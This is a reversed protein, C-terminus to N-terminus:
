GRNKLTEALDHFKSLVHAVELFSEATISVSERVSLGTSGSRKNRIEIDIRLDYEEIPM